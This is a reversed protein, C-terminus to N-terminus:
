LIDHNADHQYEFPLGTIYENYSALINEINEIAQTFFAPQKDASLFLLVSNEDRNVSKIEYSIANRFLIYLIDMLIDGPVTYYKVNRTTEKQRNTSTRM